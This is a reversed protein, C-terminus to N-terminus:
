ATGVNATAVVAEDSEIRGDRLRVLRSGVAAVEPEHTVIIITTGSDHLSRLLALVGGASVSDLNGTPEDALVVQPNNVLARAIAVRQQEGGSLQTPVHQARSELGVAALAELARARRAATPVRAYALPLEVNDLATTRPLLNNGQFVFGIRERRVRALRARDFGAVEEGALLYRGATPRDLCGLMNLLTSKGGGSPGMVCVLEGPFIRLSVGRLAELSVEGVQYVKTLDEVDIVPGNAGLGSAVTSNAVAAPQARGPGV